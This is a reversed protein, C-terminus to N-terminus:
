CNKSRYCCKTYKGDDLGYESVNLQQAQESDIIEPLVMEDLATGDEYQLLALGVESVGIVTFEKGIELDKFKKGVYRDKISSVNKIM